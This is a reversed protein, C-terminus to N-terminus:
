SRNLICCTVAAVFGADSGCIVRHNVDLTIHGGIVLEPGFLYM